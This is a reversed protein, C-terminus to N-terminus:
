ELTPSFLYLKIFQIIPQLGQWTCVTFSKMLYDYSCSFSKQPEFPELSPFHVKNGPITQANEVEIM